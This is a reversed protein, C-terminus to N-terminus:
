EQLLINVSVRTKWDNDTAAMLQLQYEGSPLPMFRFFEEKFVLDRVVIEKEYPCTHNLNSNPVFSDMIIKQFSLKNPKLLFKCFDFTGNFMFPRFGNFKRWLSLNVKANNFPGKLLRAEVNLAVIGRGTIKLDCQTYSCYSPDLVECKINTFRPPAAVIINASILLLIILSMTQ